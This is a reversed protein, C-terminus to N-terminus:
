WIRTDLIFNDSDFLPNECALIIKGKRKIEANHFQIKKYDEGLESFLQLCKESYKNAQIIDNYFYYIAALVHYAIAQHRKGSAIATNKMLMKNMLNLLETQTYKQSLLMIVIIKLCNRTYSHIYKQEKMKDGINQLMIISYDKELLAKTFAIESLSDLLRRPENSKEFIDKAMNLLGFARYMDILFFLNNSTNSNIFLNIDNLIAMQSSIFLQPTYLDLTKIDKIIYNKVESCIKIKIVYEPKSIIVKVPLFLSNDGKKVNWDSLEKYINMYCSTSEFADDLVIGVNQDKSSKFRVYILYENRLKITSLKLFRNDGCDYKDLFCITEIKDEIYYKQACNTHFYKDEITPNDSLWSEIEEGNIYYIKLNDRNSAFIDARRKYDDSIYANTIFAIVVVHGDLLSSVLTSDLHSKPISKNTNVSYKAEYWYKITTNFPLYSIVSEGDKNGDNTMKTKEWRLNPYNSVMYEFALNEFEKNNINEWTIM